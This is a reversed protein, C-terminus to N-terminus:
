KYREMTCVTALVGLDLLAIPLPCIPCTIILYTCRVIMQAIYYWEGIVRWAPPVPGSQAGIREAPLM